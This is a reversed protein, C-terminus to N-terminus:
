DARGLYRAIGLVNAGLVVPHGSRTKIRISMNDAPGFSVVTDVAATVPAYLPWLGLPAHEAILRQEARDFEADSTVTMDVSDVVVLSAAARRLSGGQAFLKSWSSTADPRWPPSAASSFATALVASDYWEAPIVAWQARAGFVVRATVASAAFKRHLPASNSNEWLGTVDHSAGAWTERVDASVKGSDFAGGAGPSAAILKLLEAYSGRYAPVKAAGVVFPAQAAPTALVARSLFAVGASMAGIAHRAAWSQFLAPLNADSPRPHQTALYDSWDKANAEGIAQAISVTPTEMQSQVTAYQDSLRVIDSTARNFTLSAPPVVNECNWLAADTAALPAAPLWVQFLSRDLSLAGVLFNYWRNQLTRM